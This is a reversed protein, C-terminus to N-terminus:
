KKGLCEKSCFYKGDSLIAENKSVFVKCSGCEIMEDIIAEDKKAVSKERAKKFVFVYLLFLAIAVLIIKLIMM